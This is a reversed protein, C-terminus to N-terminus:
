PVKIVLLSVTSSFSCSSSASSVKRLFSASDLRRGRLQESRRGSAPVGFLRAHGGWCVFLFFPPRPGLLGKISETNLHPSGPAKNQNSSFSGRCWSQNTRKRRPFWAILICFNVAGRGFTNGGAAQTEKLTSKM